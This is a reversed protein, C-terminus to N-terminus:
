IVFAVSMTVKVDRMVSRKQIWASRMKKERWIKLLISIYCILIIAVPIFLVFFYMAITYSLNSLTRSKWDPACSIGIGELEFSGWAVLPMTGWFLGFSFCLGIAMWIRFRGITNPKFTSTM